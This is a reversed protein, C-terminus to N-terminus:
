RSVYYKRKEARGFGIRGVGRKSGKISGETTGKGFRLGRGRGDYGGEPKGRGNGM